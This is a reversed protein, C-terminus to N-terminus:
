AFIGYACKFFNKIKDDTWESMDVNITINPSSSIGVRTESKDQAMETITNMTPKTNAFDSINEDSNDNDTINKINSDSNTENAENVVENDEAILSKNEEVLVYFKEKANSDWIIRTKKGARGSKFEGFDIYQLINMLLKAGEFRNGETSGYNFKGWYNIFDDTTTETINDDKFINVLLSEYPFYSLVIKSLLEKKESENSYALKTGLDTFSCGDVKTIGLIKIASKTHNYLAISKGFIAKIADEDGKKSRIAAILDIINDATIYAPLNKNDM